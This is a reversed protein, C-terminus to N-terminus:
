GNLYRSNDVNIFLYTDNTFLRIQFYRISHTIDNIYLYFPEQCQGNPNRQQYSDWSLHKVMLVLVNIDTMSFINSGPQPVM